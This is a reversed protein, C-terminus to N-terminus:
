LGAAFLDSQFRQVMGMHQDGSTLVPLNAAVYSTLEGMSILSNNDADAARGFAELLVDTFAGNEWKKDERSLKDAKSSTLVTVNSLSM